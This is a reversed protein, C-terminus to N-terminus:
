RAGHRREQVVDLVTALERDDLARVAELTWGTAIALEITM